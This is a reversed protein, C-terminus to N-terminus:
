RRSGRVHEEIRDLKENLRDMQRELISDRYTIKEKVSEVQDVSASNAWLLGGLGSALAFAALIVVRFETKELMKGHSPCTDANNPM